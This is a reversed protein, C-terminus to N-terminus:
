LLLYTDFNKISANAFAEYSLNMPYGLLGAPSRAFDRLPICLENKAYLAVEKARDLNGKQHSIWCAMGCTQIAEEMIFMYFSVSGRVDEFVRFATGGVASLTSM